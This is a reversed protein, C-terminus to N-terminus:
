WFIGKGDCWLMKRWKREIETLCGLGGDDVSVVTQNAPIKVAIAGFDFLVFASSFGKRGGRDVEVTDGHSVFVM